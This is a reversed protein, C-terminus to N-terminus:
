RQPRDVPPASRRRWPPRRQSSSMPRRGRRRPRPRPRARHGSLPDKGGDRAGARQALRSAPRAVPRALRWGGSGATGSSARAPRSGAPFTRPRTRPSGRPPRRTGPPRRGPRPPQGVATGPRRRRTASRRVVRELGRQDPDVRAGPSEGALPRHRRAVDGRVLGVEVLQGREHGLDLSRRGRQRRPDLQRAHAHVPGDGRAPRTGPRGRRRGGARRAASRWVATVPSSAAAVDFVSVSSPWSATAANASRASPDSSLSTRGARPPPRRRRAIAGRTRRPGLDLGLEVGDISGQRPEPRVALQRREVASGARPGHDRDGPPQPLRHRHHIARSPDGFPPEVGADEARELADPLLAGRDGSVVGHVLGGAAGELPWSRDSRRGYGEVRAPDALPERQAPGGRARDRCERRRRSEEEVGAPVDDDRTLRRLAAPPDPDRVRNRARVALGFRERDDAEVLSGNGRRRDADPTPGVRAPQGDVVQDVRRGAFRGAGPQDRDRDRSCVRGPRLHPRLRQEEGPPRRDAVLRAAAAKGGPPHVGRPRRPM